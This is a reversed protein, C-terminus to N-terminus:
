NGLGKIGETAHIKNENSEDNNSDGSNNIEEKKPELELCVRYQGSEKSQLAM